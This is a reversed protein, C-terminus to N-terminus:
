NWPRLKPVGSGFTNESGGVLPSGFLQPPGFILATGFINAFIAFCSLYHQLVNDFLTETTNKGVNKHLGKRSAAFADFAAFCIHM